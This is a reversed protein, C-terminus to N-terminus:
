HQVRKIRLYGCIKRPISFMYPLITSRSRGGEGSAIASLGPASAAAVYGARNMRWLMRKIQAMPRLPQILYRHFLTAVSKAAASGDRYRWREESRKSDCIM